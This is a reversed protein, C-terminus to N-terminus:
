PRRPPAAQTLRVGIRSRPREVRRTVIGIARPAQPPSGTEVEVEPGSVDDLAVVPAPPAAAEVPVAPAVDVDVPVPPAPPSLDAPQALVKPVASVLAKPRM